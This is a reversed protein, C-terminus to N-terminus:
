RPSAVTIPRVDITLDSRVVVMSQPPVPQWGPDPSLAESAIIVAGEGDDPDVMRCMGGECVYRRGRHMYLSAYQGDSGSSFRTAVLGKGDTVVLNLHCPKEIGRAELLAQTFAVTKTLADAMRDAPDAISEDLQDRFHAFLHESDTSGELDAVSDESLAQIFSRKLFRFDPVDGNHMFAYPGVRFPHCNVEAVPLEPSAARVHALICSSVTVRCLDRLNRNNWAPSVARFVAPQLSREPRYWAVGFGDGNMPEAREKSSRSQNIL